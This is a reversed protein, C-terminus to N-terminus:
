DYPDGLYVANCTPHRSEFVMLPVLWGAASQWDAAAIRDAFRRNLEALPGPLCQELKRARAMEFSRNRPIVLSASIDVDTLLRALRDSVLIVSHNVDITLATARLLPYLRRARRADSGCGYIMRMARQASLREQHYQRSPARRGQRHRDHVLAALDRRSLAAQRSSAPFSPAPPIVQLSVICPVNVPPM